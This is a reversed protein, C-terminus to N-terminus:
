LFRLYPMIVEAQVAAREEPVSTTHSLVYEEDTQNNSCTAQYRWWESQGATENVPEAENMRKM